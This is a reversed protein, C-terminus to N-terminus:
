KKLDNGDIIIEKENKDIIKLEICEDVLKDVFDKWGPLEHGEM